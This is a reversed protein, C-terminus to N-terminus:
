KFDRRKLSPLRTRITLGKQAEKSLELVTETVPSGPPSVVREGVVAPEFGTADSESHEDVPIM